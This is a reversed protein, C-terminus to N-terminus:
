VLEVIANFASLKPLSSQPAKLQAQISAVTQELSKLKQELSVQSVPVVGLGSPRASDSHLNVWSSTSEVPSPERSSSVEVLFEALQGPILLFPDDPVKGPAGAATPKATPRSALPAPGAASVRIGQM